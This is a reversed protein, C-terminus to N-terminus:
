IGEDSILNIKFKIENITNILDKKIKKNLIRYILSTSMFISLRNEYIELQEKYYDINYYGFRSQNRNCLLQRKLVEKQFPTINNLDYYLM